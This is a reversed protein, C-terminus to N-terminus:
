KRYECIADLRQALDPWRKILLADNITSAGLCKLGAVACAGALGPEYPREIDFGDFQGAGDIVLGDPLEGYRAGFKAICEALEELPDPSDLRADELGRLLSQGKVFCSTIALLPVHAIFHASPTCTVKRTNLEFHQLQINGAAGFSTPLTEEIAPKCGMKRVFDLMPLNWADLPANNIQLVGRQLLSKASIFLGALLSDGPLALRVTEVAPKSFDVSITFTLEAESKKKKKYFRIRRELPDTSEGGQSSKVEVEYGFHPLVARIPGIPNTESAFRIARKLGFALGLLAYIAIWEVEGEPVAYGQTDKLTFLVGEDRRSSDLTCGLDAASRAFFNIRADSIHRIAVSKGSGLLAFVIFDRLPIHCNDFTVISTGEAAQPVIKCTQEGTEVSVLPSLIRIWRDIEEGSIIPELEANVRAIGAMCAALFFYDPDGPMSVAGSMEKTTRVEIVNM